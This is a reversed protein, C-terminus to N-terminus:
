IRVERRKGGNDFYELEPVNQLAEESRRRPFGSEANKQNM